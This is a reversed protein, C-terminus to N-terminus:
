FGTPLARLLANFEPSRHDPSCMEPALGPHTHLLHEICAEQTCFRSTTGTFAPVGAPRHTHPLTLPPLRLCTSAEEPAPSEEPGLPIHPSPQPGANRARSSGPDWQLPPTNPAWGAHSTATTDWCWPWMDQSLAPTGVSKQLWARAWTTGM